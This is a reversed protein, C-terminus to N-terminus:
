SDYCTCVCNWNYYRFRWLLKIFVLVCSKFVLIPMCPGSELKYKWRLKRSTCVHLLMCVFDYVSFLVFHRQDRGRNEEEGGFPGPSKRRNPFFRQRLPSWSVKDQFEQSSGPRWPGPPSSIQGAALGHGYTGRRGRAEAWGGAAAPELVAQIPVCKLGPTM